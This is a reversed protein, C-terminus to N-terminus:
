DIWSSVLFYEIFIFCGSYALFLDLHIYLDSNVVFNVMRNVIHFHSFCFQFNPVEYCKIKTKDIRTAKRKGKEKGKEKVSLILSVSYMLVFFYCLSCFNSCIFEFSLYLVLFSFLPLPLPYNVMKSDMLLIKKMTRLFMKSLPQNSFHSTTLSPADTTALMSYAPSTQLILFHTHGFHYFFSAPHSILGKSTPLARSSCQRRFHFRLPM